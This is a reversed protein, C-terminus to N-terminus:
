KLRELFSRVRGVDVAAAVDGDHKFATGVIFGDAADLSAVNDGSVGSGVLVPVDDGTAAKVARVHQPDTPKGTGAGSVILGDALGRGITDEVEEEIPRVALAASHKVDVDALIRISAADPGLAARQRLLDHAIGQILGQDTVRAGCLVNVRIFQAGAAHAKLALRNFSTDDAPIPAPASM